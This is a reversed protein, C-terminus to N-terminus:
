PLPNEGTSDQSLIAERPSTTLRTSISHRYDELSKQANLLNERAIEECKILNSEEYHIATVLSNLWQIFDGKSLNGPHAIPDDGLVLYQEGFNFVRTEGGAITSVIAYCAGHPKFGDLEERSPNFLRENAVLGTDLWRKVQAAIKGAAHECGAKSAANCLAYLGDRLERKKKCECAAVHSPIAKCEDFIDDALALFQYHRPTNNM